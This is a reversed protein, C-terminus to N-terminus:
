PFHIFGFWKLLLYNCLISFVFFGGELSHKVGLLDCTRTGYRGNNEKLLGSCPAKKIDNESEKEISKEDFEMDGVVVGNKRYGRINGYTVLFDNLAILSSDGGYEENFLRKAAPNLRQFAEYFVVAEIGSFDGSVKEPGFSTSLNTATMFNGHEMDFNTHNEFCQNETRKEFKGEQSLEPLSDTKLLKSDGCLGEFEEGRLDQVYNKGRILKSNGFVKDMLTESWNLRDKDTICSSRLNNFIKPWVELGATQITRKLVTGLNTHKRYKEFVYEQGPAAQVRVIEFYPVIQYFLPIERRGTKGSEHVIFKYNFFHEFKMERIECPIRLGAHRALMLLLRFEDDPCFPLIRDIVEVAVYFQREENCEYGARIEQYPNESLYKHRVAYRFITRFQKCHRYVTTPGLPRKRENMLWHCHKEADGPTIQDIRRDKPYYDLLYNFSRQYHYKTDEDKAQLTSRFDELFNGLKPITEDASKEILGHEALADRLAFPLNNVRNWDYVTIPTGYRKSQVLTKLLKKFGEFTVKDVNKSIYIERTKGDGLTYYARRATNKKTKM